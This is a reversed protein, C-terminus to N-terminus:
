KLFDTFYRTIREHLHVMDKGTMNHGQNPYTFYDCQVGADECARLFAFTHQPVCIPDNYGNIIQLRGKLNKAKLLLNSGKYGEPNQQPTDMYHEGYMVEYFKWDIVPGGAVGVKFVDPYSCMLNTTMFGGFSWGHVGLKDADVYPLSKLFEVGKMQDKMEEVGLHRFTVSEFALGRNESGRNDVVFLVYGKQAMYIEWGRTGYFHNGYVNHARPGGYVYVVAPYKKNPDFNVPKVLRYYLDTTGDAAKITGCSIEPMNFQEEWPHKEITELRTSKATATNTVSNYRAIRPSNGRDLIFKGSPSLVASHVGEGDDLATRKLTKVNVSYLNENIPKAENSLYVVSKAASNFGVFDIVEFEGKTLQTTTKSSLDYSYLHNFGDRRSEFVFKNNDWPLFRLPAKLDVYKENREEFIVGKNEGTAADYSILQMHNQDRNLEFLYITKEDPSWSINTFYRDTPDCTKLYITKGTNVDFVGVYVKHSTEGAMPYKDPAYQAIRSVGASDKNNDGCVPTINVQPYDTVMSQDMKYFALKKGSPSWYTGKSIGFEDRHVSQGYVLNRSGDQTIQTQKGEATIVYLNDKNVYAENGSPINLDRAKIGAPIERSKVVKKTKWDVLYIKRATEIIIETKEPDPFKISQLSYPKADADIGECSNIDELTFLKEPKVSQGKANTLWTCEDVGLRVLKDGWWTANLYKPQYNWYADGGWLLNDLTFSKKQANTAPTIMLCLIPIAFILKKINM